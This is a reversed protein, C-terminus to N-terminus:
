KRSDAWDVRLILNDYGFGNLKDIALQADSHTYFSVYAFGKSRRTERDRGIFCRAVRGFNSFLDRIDDETAEESLNAVRLSPFEDRSQQTAGASAGAGGGNRMGPAVYKGPAPASSSPKASVPGESPAAGGTVKADMDAQSMTRRKPCKLFLHDNVAGCFRCVMQGGGAPAGASLVSNLNCARLLFCYICILTSLAKWPDIPADEEDIKKKREIFVEDISIITTSTDIGPAQGACEGFKKWLRREEVRKNKLVKTVNVRVKRVTKVRQGRENTRYETVFKIGNADVATETKRDFADEDAADGWQQSKSMAKTHQQSRFCAIMAVLAAPQRSSLWSAGAALSFNV